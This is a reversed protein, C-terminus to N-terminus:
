DFYASAHLCYLDLRVMVSFCVHLKIIFLLLVDKDNGIPVFFCGREYLYLFLFGMNSSNDM